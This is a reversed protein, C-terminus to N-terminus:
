KDKKKFTERIMNYLLYAAIGCGGGVILINLIIYM